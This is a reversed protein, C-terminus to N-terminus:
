IDNSRGEKWENKMLKKERERALKRWGNMEENWGKELNDEITGKWKEKTEEQKM